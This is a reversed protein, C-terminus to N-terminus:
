LSKKIAKLFYITKNYVLLITATTQTDTILLLFKKLSILFYKPLPYYFVIYVVLVFM